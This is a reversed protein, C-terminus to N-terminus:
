RSTLMTRSDNQISSWGASPFALIRHATPLTTCVLEDTLHDTMMLVEIALEHDSLLLEPHAIAPITTSAHPLHIVWSAETAAISSDARLEQNGRHPDVSASPRTTPKSGLRRVLREGSSQVRSNWAQARVDPFIEPRNKMSHAGAM